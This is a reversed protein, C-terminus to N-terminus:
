FSRAFCCVFGVLYRPLIKRLHWFLDSLLASVWSGGQWSGPSRVLFGWPCSVDECDFAAMCQIPSCCLPLCGVTHPVWFFRLLTLRRALHFKPSVVHGREIGRLLAIDPCGTDLRAYWNMIRTFAIPMTWRQLTGSGIGDSTTRTSTQFPLCPKIKAALGALLVPAEATEQRQCLALSVQRQKVTEEVTNAHAELRIRLSDLCSQATSLTRRDQASTFNYLTTEHVLKQVDDLTAKATTLQLVQQQLSLLTLADNSSTPVPAKKQRRPMDPSQAPKHLTSGSLLSSLWPTMYQSMVVPRRNGRLPLICTPPCRAFLRGWPLGWPRSTKSIAALGFFCPHLSTPPLGWHLDQCLYQTVVQRSGLLRLVSFFQAWQWRSCFHCHPIGEKTM